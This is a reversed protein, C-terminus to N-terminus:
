HVKLKSTFMKRDGEIDFIFKYDGHDFLSKGISIRDSGVPLLYVMDGIGDYIRIQTTTERTLFKIEEQVEDFEAKLFFKFDDDSDVNITLLGSDVITFEGTVGTSPSNTYSFGALILTLCVAWISITKGMTENKTIFFMNCNEVICISLWLPLYGKYFMYFFAQM